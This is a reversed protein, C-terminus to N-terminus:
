ALLQYIRIDPESALLSDLQSEAAEIHASALHANLMAQNQWEEVFTFDTPDEQNQWLEYTICGEEQRTPEVLAFLVSKVQEVKGPLAIVRAVVRLSATSM